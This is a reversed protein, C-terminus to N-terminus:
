FKDLYKSFQKLVANRKKISLNSLNNSANKAKKGINEMYLNKSM